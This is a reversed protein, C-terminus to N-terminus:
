GCARVFYAAELAFLSLRLLLLTNNQIFYVVACWQGLRVSLSVNVPHDILTSCCNISRSSETKDIICYILSAAQITFTALTLFHIFISSMCDTASHGVRCYGASCLIAVSYVDETLSVTHTAIYEEDSMLESYNSKNMTDEPEPPPPLPVEAQSWGARNDTFVPLSQPYQVYGGPAPVPLGPVPSYQVLRVDPGPAYQNQTVPAAGIIPEEVVYVLETPHPALHHRENHQHDRQHHHVAHHLLQRGMEGAV